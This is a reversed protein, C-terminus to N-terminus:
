RKFGVGKMREEQSVEEDDDTRRKCVDAIEEKSLREVPKVSVGSKLGSHGFINLIHNCTHMVSQLLPDRFCHVRM